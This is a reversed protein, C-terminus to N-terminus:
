IHLPDIVDQAAPLVSVDEEGGALLFRVACERDRPADSYRACIAAALRKAAEDAPGRLLGTPGM